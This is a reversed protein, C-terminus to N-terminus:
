ETWWWSNKVICVPITYTMCTQKVAQSCSWSTGDQDQECATLLCTHCIVNRHTCHLVGSSPCLLQGFCTSSLELFSNSFNTCKNPKITLINQQTQNLMFSCWTGLVSSQLMVVFYPSVVISFASFIVEPDEEYIQFMFIFILIMRWSCKGKLVIKINPQGHM